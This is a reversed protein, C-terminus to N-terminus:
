VRCLTCDFHNAYSLGSKRLKDFGKEIATQKNAAKITYVVRGKEITTASFLWKYM